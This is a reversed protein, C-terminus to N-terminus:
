EGHIARANEDLMGKLDHTELEQRLRMVESAASGAVVNQYPYDRMVDAVSPLTEGRARAIKGIETWKKGDRYVGMLAIPVVITAMAGLGIMIVEINGMFTGLATMGIGVLCAIGYGWGSTSTM